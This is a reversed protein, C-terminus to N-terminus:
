IPWKGEFASNVKLTAQRAVSPQPNANVYISYDDLSVYENEQIGPYKEGEAYM